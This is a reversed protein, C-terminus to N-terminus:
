PTEGSDLSTRYANAELVHQAAALNRDLAYEDLGDGKVVGVFEISQGDVQAIGSVVAGPTYLDGAVLPVQCCPRRWRFPNWRM